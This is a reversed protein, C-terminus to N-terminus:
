KAELIEIRKLLEKNSEILEKNSEILLGVLNGYAVSKMGQNDTKVVEPIVAEVEQAIVGISKSDEGIKNFEVGRLKSVKLSANNITKINEKTRVDSTATVDGTARISGSVDLKYTPTDDGIGVNGGERVTFLKNANRDVINFNINSNDYELGIRKVNSSNYIDLIMNDGSIANVKLAPVTTSMGEIDIMAQPDTTGIGLRGTGDLRMGEERTSGNQINFAIAYLNGANECVARISAAVGTGSSSSDNSLFNIQALDQGAVVASDGNEVNLITPADANNAYIHLKSDPSDTGIGVNGTARQASLVIAGTSSNIHRIIGFTNNPLGYSGNGDYALSFGYDKSNTVGNEGENLFVRSAVDATSGSAGVILTTEASGGSSVHLESQPSDTGVGVSGDSQLYLAKNTTSTDKVEFLMGFRGADTEAISTIIGSNGSSDTSSDSSRFQVSCVSQGLSLNTDGNEIILNTSKGDENNYIHLPATPLAKQIGIYNNAIERITSNQINGTGDFMAIRNDTGTGSVTGYSLDNDFDSLAIDDQNGTLDTWGVSASTPTEWATATTSTATLVQGDSGSVTPLTFQDNINVEQIFKPM